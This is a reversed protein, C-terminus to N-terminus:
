VKGKAARCDGEGMMTTPGAELDRVVFLSRARETDRHPNTSYYVYCKTNQVDNPHRFTGGCGVEVVAVISRTSIINAIAQNNGVKNLMWESGVFSSRRSTSVAMPRVDEEGPRIAIGKMADPARPLRRM